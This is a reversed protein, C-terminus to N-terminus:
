TIGRDSPDLQNKNFDDEQHQTAQYNSPNDPCREYGGLGCDGHGDDDSSDLGPCQSSESDSTTLEICEYQPQTRSDMYTARRIERQSQGVYTRDPLLPPRRAGIASLLRDAPTMGGANSTQRHRTKTATQISTTTVKGDTGSVVQAQYPYNTGDGPARPTPSPTSEAPSNQAPKGHSTSPHTNEIPPTGDLMLRRRVTPATERDGDGARQRHPTHTGVPNEGLKIEDESEYITILDGAPSWPITRHRRTRKIVNNKTPTPTTNSIHSDDGGPTERGPTPQNHGGQEHTYRDINNNAPQQRTEVPRTEPPTGTMAPKKNAEEKLLKSASSTSTLPDHPRKRMHDGTDQTPQTHTENNNCHTQRRKAALGRLKAQLRSGAMPGCIETDPQTTNTHGNMNVTPPPSGTNQNEIQKGKDDPEQQTAVIQTPDAAGPPATVDQGLHLLTQTVRARIEVPLFAETEDFESHEHWMYPDELPPMTPSPILEGSACHHLPDRDPANTLPQVEIRKVVVPQETKAQRPAARRGDPQPDEGRLCVRRAPLFHGDRTPLPQPRNQTVHLQKATVPVTKQQDRANRPPFNSANAQINGSENAAKREARLTAEIVRDTAEKTVTLLANLRTFVVEDDIWIMARNWATVTDSRVSEFTEAIHRLNRSEDEDLRVNPMDLSQNQPPGTPIANIRESSETTIDNEYNERRTKRPKTHTCLEVSTGTTQLDDPESESELTSYDDNSIPITIGKNWYPPLDDTTHRATEVLDQIELFTVKDGRSRVEEQLTKWYTEMRTLTRKLNIRANLLNTTSMKRRPISIGPATFTTIRSSWEICSMMSEQYIDDVDGVNSLYETSMSLAENVAGGTKRALTTLEAYFRPEDIFITDYQIFEDLEDEMRIYDKHLGQRADLIQVIESLTPDSGIKQVTTHQLYEARRHTAAFYHRIRDEESWM